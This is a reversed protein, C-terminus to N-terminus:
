KESSLTIGHFASILRILALASFSVSEPSAHRRLAATGYQGTTTCLAALAKGDLKANHVNYLGASLYGFQELLSSPRACFVEIEYNRSAFTLVVSLTTNSKNRTFLM